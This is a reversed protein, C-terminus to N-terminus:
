INLSRTKLPRSKSIFRCLKFIFNLKQNGDTDRFQSQALSELSLDQWSLGPSGPISVCRLACTLGGSRSQPVRGSGDPCLFRPVALSLIRGTEM